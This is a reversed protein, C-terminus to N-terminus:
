SNNIKSSIFWGAIGGSIISGIAVYPSYIAAISGLGAGLISLTINNLKKFYTKNIDTIDKETENQLSEKSEKIYDEILDVQKQQSFIENNLETFLESVLSFESEIEKIEYNNEDLKFFREQYQKRLM